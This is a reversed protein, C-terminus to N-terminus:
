APTAYHDLILRVTSRIIETQQKKTLPPESGLIQPWFAFTDLMGRLQRAVLIPDSKTLRGAQQADKIWNVLSQEGPRSDGLLQKALEPTQLFRPLVVKALDKFEDSNALDMYAQAVKRLQSELPKEQDFTFEQVSNCRSKLRGVIAVFLEEKSPFHNYVTRKSANAVEAIRDM